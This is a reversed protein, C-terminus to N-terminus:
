HGALYGARLLKPDIEHPQWGEFLSQGDLTYVPRDLEVLLPLSYAVRSTLSKPDGTCLALAAEVFTEMPETGGGQAISPIISASLPTWIAGTPALNNVALNESYLELAAGTCIRDLFAKTGGYICAGGLHHAPMEPSPKPRPAAQASSITLIWGAGRRRMGPIVHQMLDWAAWVNIEVGRFFWERPTEAFPIQGKAGFERPAAASNVLIDPAAGYAAEVQRVIEGRDYDPDGLDAYVPIAEGGAARVMELTEELTGALEKNRSAEGRGVVGVKAGEAAFRIAMAQGIGRSAGTIIAVRGVCSQGMFCSREGHRGMIVDGLAGIIGADAHAQPTM